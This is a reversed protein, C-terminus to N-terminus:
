AWKMFKAGFSVRELETAPLLIGKELEWQEVALGPPFKASTGDKQLYQPRRLDSRRIVIGDFSEGGPTQTYGRLEFEEPKPLDKLKWVSVGSSFTGKQFGLIDEMEAPTRLLLNKLCTFYGGVTSLRRGLKRELELTRSISLVKAPWFTPASKWQEIVILKLKPVDLGTTDM